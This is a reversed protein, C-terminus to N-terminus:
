LFLAQWAALWPAPSLELLWPTEEQAIQAKLFGVIGIIGEASACLPLSARLISPIRAELLWQKLAKAQRMALLRDGAQRARLVIEEREIKRSLPLRWMAETKKCGEGEEQSAWAAPIIRLRGWPTTEWPYAEEEKGEELGSPLFRGSLRLTYRELALTPPVLSLPILYLRGTSRIVVTGKGLSAEANEGGGEALGLLHDLQDERLTQQFGRLSARQLIRWRL